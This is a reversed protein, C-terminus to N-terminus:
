KFIEAMFPVAPLGKKNYLNVEDYNKWGYRVIKPHKVSEQYVVVRNIDDVFATATVFCDDEGCVEFGKLKKGDIALGDQSTFDFNLLVRGDQLVEMSRYLPSHANINEHYIQERAMLALRHGVPQKNVPHINYKEGCDVAVVMDTYAVNRWVALQQDRLIAWSNKHKDMKDDDYYPLQVFIFRLTEDRFAQRWNQILQTFLKEYLLCNVTDEEGQYWLVAKVRYPLIKELMTHYLGSPRVFTKRTLPPPWPTHGVVKKVEGLSMEPHAEKYEELDKMYEQLKEMYGTTRQDEQAETSHEITELYKDLYIKKLEPDVALYSEDMWCSASTGGKNCNIIGIPVKIDEYLEKAFYYAVASFDGSNEPSCVEWKGDMFDPIKRMEDEYEIQPVNYYRIQECYSEAIAQTGQLEDKLRFEMNSQGAAVFVDGILIDKLVIAEDGCHATMTFPGGVTLPDLLISWKGDKSIGEKEQSCFEIKIKEGDTAKGWVPVKCERQLVM